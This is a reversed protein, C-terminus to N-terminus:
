VAAEAAPNTAPVGLVLDESGQDNPRVVLTISADRGALRVLITGGSGAMQKFHAVLRDYVAVPFTMRPKWDTQMRGRATPLAEAPVALEVATFGSRLRKRLLDHCLRVHPRIRDTDDIDYRSTANMPSDKAATGLLEPDQDVVDIREGERKASTLHPNIVVQRLFGFGTTHGRAM